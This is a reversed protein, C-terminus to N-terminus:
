LEASAGIGAMWELAPEYAGSLTLQWLRNLRGHVYFPGWVTVRTETVVLLGELELLEEPDTNVHLLYAGLVFPAPPTLSLRLWASTDGAGDHEAAALALSGVESWNVSLQGFGGHHVGDRTAAVRAKPAAVPAGWGTTRFREVEYIPGFYDPIYDGRFLRGEARLAVELVETAELAVSIGAHGGVGLGVNFDAYPLVRWRGDDVLSLDADFGAVTVPSSEDVPPESFFGIECGQCQTLRVPAGFDSAASVGVSLRHGWAEPDLFGWPRVYGRLAFLHPATVDDLATQIGGYATNAAVQLGPSFDSLVVNNNYGNVITGHGLVLAGLEGFRAHFPEHPRGYELLRAIRFFDGPDDWDEMRVLEDDSPVDDVLEFRLPAQIVARVPTAGIEDTALFVLRTELLTDEALRGVGLEAELRRTPQATARSASLLILLGLLLCQGKRPVARRRTRAPLGRDSTIM